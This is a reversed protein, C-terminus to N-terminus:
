GGLSKKHATFEADSMNRLQRADVGPDPSSTSATRVAADVAERDATLGADPRSGFDGRIEKGVNELVRNWGKPNTHRSQFASLFREDTSAYGHLMRTVTADPIELDKLDGQLTKVADGIANRTRSQQNELNEAKLTQVDQRLAELTNPDVEPTATTPQDPETEGSVEFEALAADLTDSADQGDAVPMAQGDPIKVVTQTVTM